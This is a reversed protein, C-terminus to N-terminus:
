ADPVIVRDVATGRNQVYQRWPLRAVDSMMWRFSTQKARAYMGTSPAILGVLLENLAVTHERFAPGVDERPVKLPTGLVTQAAAYGVATLAWLDVYRGDHTRYALRRLYPHNFKRRGEGALYRLRKCMTKATRGLYFLRQLQQNSVYRAIALVGLLQHDKDTLRTKSLTQRGTTGASNTGLHHDSRSRDSIRTSQPKAREEEIARVQSTEIM